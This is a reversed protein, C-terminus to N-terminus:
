AGDRLAALDALDQRDFDRPPGGSLVQTVLSSEVAWYMVSDPNRSHGPHDPDDRGTDLTLDVLGLLHGLEHMLVADEIARGSVLPTGAAAVSDSFIALVDGRVTVGLVEDNGQLSGRLFLVHLVARGGGQGAKTLRDATERIAAPTWQQAGGPVEIPSPDGVSKQTVSRLVSKAHDVSGSRPEAGAQQFLEFVVTTAPEPRLLTRAFAGPSGSSGDDEDGAPKPPPQQEEGGGGGAQGTTTSGADGPEGLEVEIGGGNSCAAALSAVLVVAVLRRMPHAVRRRMPHAVLRRM